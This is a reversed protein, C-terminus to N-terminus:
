CFRSSKQEEKDRSLATRRIFGSFNEDVTVELGTELVNDIICTVVKGAKVKEKVAEKFPDENLQKIGM